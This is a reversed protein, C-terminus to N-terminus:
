WAIAGWFHDTVHADNQNWIIVQVQHTGAPASQAQYATGVQYFPGSGGGIMNGNIDYSYFGWYFKSWSHTGRAEAYLIPYNNQVMKTGNACWQYGIATWQINGCDLAYTGTIATAPSAVIAPVAVAGMIALPAILRAAWRRFSKLM